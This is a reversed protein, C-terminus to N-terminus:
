NKFVICGYNDEMTPFYQFLQNQMISQCSPWYEESNALYIGTPDTDDLVQGASSPLVLFYQGASSHLVRFLELEM